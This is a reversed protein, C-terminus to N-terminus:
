RAHHVVTVPVTADRVIEEAISGNFLRAIGSIEHLGTVIMSCGNSEAASILMESISGVGDGVAASTKIGASEAREAAATVRAATSAEVAFYDVTDPLTIDYMLCLDRAHAVALALAADLVVFTTDHAGLAVAIPGERSVDDEHVVVVPRDAIHMIAKTANGLPRAVGNRRGGNGVVIADSQRERACALITEATAGNREDRDAPIGLTQALRVAAELIEPRGGAKAHADHEFHCFSLSAGKRAIECAYRVAAESAASGDVVVTLHKIETVGM